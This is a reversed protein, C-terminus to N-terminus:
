SLEALGFLGPGHVEELATAHLEALTGLPDDEYRQEAELLQLLWSTWASLTDGHLACTDLDRQMRQADRPVVRVPPPGACSALL